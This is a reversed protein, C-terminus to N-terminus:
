KAYVLRPLVSMSDAESRIATVACAGMAALRIRHPEFSGSRPGVLELWQDLGRRLQTTSLRTSGFGRSRYAACPVANTLEGTFSAHIGRRSRHLRHGPRAPHGHAPVCELCAELLEDRGLEGTGQVLLIMDEEVLNELHKGLAARRFPGPQPGSVGIM